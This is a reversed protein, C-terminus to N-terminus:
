LIMRLMCNLIITGKHDGTKPPLTSIDAGTDILFWLNVSPDFVHLRWSKNKNCERMAAVSPPGELKGITKTM